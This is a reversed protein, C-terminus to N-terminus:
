AANDREIIFSTVQVILCIEVLKVPHSNFADNNHCEPQGRMSLLEAGFQPPAIWYSSIPPISLQKGDSNYM